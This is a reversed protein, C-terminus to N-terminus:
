EFQSRVEEYRELALTCLEDFQSEVMGLRDLSDRLFCATEPSEGTTFGLRHAGADSIKVIDCIERTRHDPATDPEEHLRISHVLCDPLNWCQAILAGIEAHDVGLITREAVVATEDAKRAAEILRMTGEDINEYMVVRGIDHLLSATFAEAPIPKRRVLPIMETVVAAAVDHRWLAGEPAKLEPIAVSMTGRVAIGVAIRVVVGSGMRVIAQDLSGVRSAASSAASNACRLIRATLPADFSVAQIVDDVDWEENAFLRTLKLATQSLPELDNAALLLTDHDLLFPGRRRAPQLTKPKRPDRTAKM